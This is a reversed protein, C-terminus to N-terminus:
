GWMDRVQQSPAELALEVRVPEGDPEEPENAGSVVLLCDEAAAAAAAGQAAFAEHCLAKPGLAIDSICFVPLFCGPTETCEEAQGPPLARDSSRECWFLTHFADAADEGEILVEKAFLTLPSRHWEGTASQAHLHMFSGARMQSLLAALVGRSAAEKSAAVASPSAAAAAAAVEAAAAEADGRHVFTPRILPRIQLEVHLQSHCSQLKAHLTPNTPHMLQLSLQHSSPSTIAWPDDGHRREELELAQRLLPRLDIWALGLQDKATVGDGAADYVVLRLHQEGVSAGEDGDESGDECGALECEFSKEFVPELDDPVSESNDLLAYRFVAAPNYAVGAASAPKAPDHAPCGQFVALVM